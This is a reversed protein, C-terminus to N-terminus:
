KGSIYITTTCNTTKQGLCLSIAGTRSSEQTRLLVTCKETSKKSSLSEGIEWSRTLSFTRQLFHAVAKVWICRHCCCVYGRPITRDQRSAAAEYLKSLRRRDTGSHEETNSNM